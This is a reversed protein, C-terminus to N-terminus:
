WEIRKLLKVYSFHRDRSMLSLNYQRSCAAIWVDNSPIPTGAIRLESRIEAYLAATELTIDLVRSQQLMEFLWSEYGTRRRSHQIGYQFEGIVVVPIYVERAGSVLAVAAPVGDAHDSLSSTDLLLAPIV